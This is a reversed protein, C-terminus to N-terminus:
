IGRYRPKLRMTEIPDINSKTAMYGVHVTNSRVTPFRERFLSLDSLVNTSIVLITYQDQLKAFSCRDYSILTRSKSSIVYLMSTWASCLSLSSIIKFVNHLFRPLLQIIYQGAELCATRKM